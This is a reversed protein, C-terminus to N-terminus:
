FQYNLTFSTTRGNISRARIIDNAPVSGEEAETLGVTDFL